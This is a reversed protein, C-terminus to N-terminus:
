LKNNQANIVAVLEKHNRDRDAQAIINWAMWMFFIHGIVTVLAPLWFVFMILGTGVKGHAMVAVPPCIWVLM